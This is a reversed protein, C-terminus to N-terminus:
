WDAGSDDAPEPQGSILGRGAELRRGTELRGQSSKREKRKSRFYGANVGEIDVAFGGTAQNLAADDIKQPHNAEKKM